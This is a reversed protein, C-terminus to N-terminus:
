HVASAVAVTTGVVIVVTATAVFWPQRYFPVVAAKEAATLETQLIGMQETFSQVDIQHLQQELALDIKILQTAHQVELQVREDASDAKQGLQIALKTTLLQGAYPAVDGQAMPTSCLAPDDTACEPTAGAMAALLLAAIM